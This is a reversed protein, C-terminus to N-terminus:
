HFSPSWFVLNIKMPFQICLHNLVNLKIKMQCRIVSLVNGANQTYQDNYEYNQCKVCRSCCQSTERPEKGYGAYCDKDCTSMPINGLREYFYLFKAVKCDWSAIKQIMNQTYRKLKWKERFLYIQYQGYVDGNGDFKLEYGLEGQFTVNKIYKTLSRFIVSLCSWYFIIIDCTQSARALCSSNYAECRLTRFWTLVFRKNEANVLKIWM